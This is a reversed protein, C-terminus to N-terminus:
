LEQYTQSEPNTFMPISVQLKRIREMQQANINLEMAEAMESDKTLAVTRQTELLQNSQEPNVDQRELLSQTSNDSIAGDPGPQIEEREARTADAIDKNNQLPKTPSGSSRTKEEDEQRSHAYLKLKESLEHELKKLRAKEQAIRESTASKRPTSPASSAPSGQPLRKQKKAM